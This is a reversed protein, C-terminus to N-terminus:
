GKKAYFKLTAVYAKEVSETSQTKSVGLNKFTSVFSGTKEVKWQQGHESVVMEPVNRISGKFDADIAAGMVMGRSGIITSNPDFGVLARKSGRRVIAGDSRREVPVWVNGAAAAILAVFHFPTSM